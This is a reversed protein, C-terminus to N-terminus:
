RTATGATLALDDIECVGPGSKLIRVALLDRFFFSGGGIGGVRTLAAARRGDSWSAGPTVTGRFAVPGVILDDLTVEIELDAGTDCRAGVHATLDRTSRSEGLEEGEATTLIAVRDGYLALGHEGPLSEVWLVSGVPGAAVVWGCPAGMCLSEFREEWFVGTFSPGCAPLAAGLSALVAAIAAARLARGTM